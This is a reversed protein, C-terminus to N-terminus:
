IEEVTAVFRGYRPRFDCLGIMSGAQESIGRIEELDLQGPDVIAEMELAWEQFIPRTRMVRAANVGASMRSIFRGDAYLSELERPGSYLLPLTGDGGPVLGREVHRGKKTLRAGEVLSRHVNAAPVFPGTVADFYLGGEWEIKAMQAHDDDTKTRKGSFAKLAKSYPNLPDSLRDSHMLLPSTGTMSIRIKM